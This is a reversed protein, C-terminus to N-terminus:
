EFYKLINQYGEANVIDWARKYDYDDKTRNIDKQLREPSFLKLYLHTHIAHVTIHIRTKIPENKYKDEIINYVKNMKEDNIDQSLCRHILEHVLTDIFRDYNKYLRLTVPDSFPVCSGVVYCLINDNDWSFNIIKAMETLTNKEIPEWINKVIEIYKLIDEELPYDAAFQPFKLNIFDKCHENYIFSYKFITKPISM